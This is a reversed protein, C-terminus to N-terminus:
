DKSTTRSRTYSSHPSKNFLDQQFTHNQKWNTQLPCRLGVLRELFGSPWIFLLRTQKSLKYWLMNELKIKHGTADFVFNFKVDTGWQLFDLEFLLVWLWVNSTKAYLYFFLVSTLAMTKMVKYFSGAIAYKQWRLISTHCEPQWRRWIVPLQNTILQKFFFM